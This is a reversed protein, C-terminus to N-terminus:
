LHFSGKTKLISGELDCISVKFYYKSDELDHMWGELEHMSSDLDHM